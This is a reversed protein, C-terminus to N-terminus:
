FVAANVTVLTVPINVLLVVYLDAIFVEFVSKSILLVLFYLFLLKM